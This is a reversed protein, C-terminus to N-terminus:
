RPGKPWMLAYAPNNCDERGMSGLPIRNPQRMLRGIIQDGLRAVYHPAFVGCSAGILTAHMNIPWAPLVAARAFEEIPTVAGVALLGGLLIKNRLGNAASGVNFLALCAGIALVALSPISARMVLDNGPGLYALPLLALVVLALAIRSSRHIALTAAGIFGVELLFFQAQQLLDMAPGAGKGGVSLGKPIHDLDLVLYAAVVMGVLLSPLWVRPRLLSLSQVQVTYAIVEWVVFPVVGLATLPSWLALTVVAMPLVGDLAAGFRNRSLLGIVLWGGVAHNPVWFLQTTMSSYQYKGAWWELHTTINWDSRFRPGDNLLSGIIDLGSFLVVIACVGAAVAWRPPTLSLVQLLFLTAGLATWFGMASHAAPLGLWKGVLAAPLYFGLPARLLSEKGDLLGYGVPWPSVVLDHLVADRIHWDANAFVLHDAGGLFTWSCGVLVAVVLHLPTVPSSSGTRHRGDVLPRLAFGVCVLLPLAVWLKFWGVLFITLPVALYAVAIRDLPDLPHGPGAAQPDATNQKALSMM